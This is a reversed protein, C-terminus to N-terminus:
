ASCSGCPRGSPPSWSTRASVQLGVNPQGTVESAARFLAIKADYSCWARENELVELPRTEGARRLLERVGEDGAM